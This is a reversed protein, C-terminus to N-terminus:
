IKSVKWFATTGDALVANITYMGTSLTSLQATNNQGSLVEQGAMNTITFTATTTPLTVLGTTPNPYINPTNSTLESISATRGGITLNDFYNITEESRDTFDMFIVM